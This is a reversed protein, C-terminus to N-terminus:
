PLLSVRGVETLVPDDGADLSTSQEFVAVVSDGGYDIVAMNNAFFPGAEVALGPRTDVGRTARRLLSGVVGGARTIAFRMAGREHPILANRIPSSVVQWVEPGPGDAFREVRAAYSFHIDGSAVVISAPPSERLQLSSILDVFAAFSVPFAPWDELDLSRRFREGLRSGWRGWANAECLRENWTHLDHIGNAMFVPLSTVFLVHGVADLAAQAIVEWESQQVM